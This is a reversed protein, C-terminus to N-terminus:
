KKLAVYVGIAAIAITLITSIVVMTSKTGSISGDQVNNHKELTRIRVEHDTIKESSQKNSEKMETSFADFKTNLQILLDHDSSVNENM